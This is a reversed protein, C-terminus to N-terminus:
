KWGYFISPFIQSMMFGVLVNIIILVALTIMSFISIRKKLKKYNPFEKEKCKGSEEDCDLLFYSDKDSGFIITLHSLFSAEIKHFKFCVIRLGSFAKKSELISLDDWIKFRIKKYRKKAFDSLLPISIDLDYAIFVLVFLLILIFSIIIFLFVFM